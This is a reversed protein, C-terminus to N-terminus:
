SDLGQTRLFYRQQLVNLKRQNPADSFCSTVCVDSVDLPIYSYWKCCYTSEPCSDCICGSKDWVKSAM